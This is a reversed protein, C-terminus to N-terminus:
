PHGDATSLRRLARGLSDVAIDAMDFPRQLEASSTGPRARTGLEGESQGGGSEGHEVPLEASPGGLIPPEVRTMQQGEGPGSLQERDKRREAQAQQMRARLDLLEALRSQNETM